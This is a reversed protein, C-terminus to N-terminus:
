DSFCIHLVSFIHHTSQTTPKTKWIKWHSMHLIIGSGLFVSLGHSEASKNLLINTWTETKGPHIYRRLNNRTLLQVLSNGLNLHVFSHLINKKRQMELNQFFSTELHDLVHCTKTCTKHYHSNRWKACFQKFHAGWGCVFLKQISRTQLKANLNWFIVPHCSCRVKEAMIRLSILGWDKNKQVSQCLDSRKWSYNQSNTQSRTKPHNGFCDMGM